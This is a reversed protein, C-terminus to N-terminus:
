ELYREFSVWRLAAFVAVAGLALLVLALVYTHGPGSVAGLTAVTLMLVPVVFAGSLNNSTRFDRALLTLSFSPLTVDRLEELGPGAGFHVAVLLQIPALFLIIFPLMATRNRGLQRTEKWLLSRVRAASM